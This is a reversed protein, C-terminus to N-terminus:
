ESSGSEYDLMQKFDNLIIHAEKEDITNIAFGAHVIVYDGVNPRPDMIDLGVSRHTGSMEVKATNGNIEVIKMPVALCM